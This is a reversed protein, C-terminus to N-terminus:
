GLELPSEVGSPRPQLRLGTLTELDVSSVIFRDKGTATLALDSVIEVHIKTDDGMRKQLQRTLEAVDADNFGDRPLVRVILEGIRPQVIQCREMNEVFEHIQDLGARPMMRGDTTVIVDDKRGDVPGMLPLTRGCPCPGDALGGVDESAYRILPMSYNSLGTQVLEGRVGRGAPEGRPRDVQLIGFEINQHYSGHECQQAVVLREGTGYRDWVRCEFQREIVARETPTLVESGTFVARTSFRIGEREMYRALAFLNSPYAAIFPPQWQLLLALYRPMTDVSLHFGSLYIRRDIWDRRWPVKRDRRPDVLTFGRLLVVWTGPRWGAWSWHRHVLAHDLVVRTKDLLFHLPIGTTGGTRGITTRSASVNRARLEDGYRRVHQKTLVPLKYLDDPTRIDSPKLRREDLVRRYYPVNEYAHHILRQLRDAQLTELQELPLRETAELEGVYRRYTPTLRELRRLLGYTSVTAHQLAVPLRKYLREIFPSDYIV